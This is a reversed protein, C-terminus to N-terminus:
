MVPSLPPPLEILMAADANKGLVPKLAAHKVPRHAHQRLNTLGM